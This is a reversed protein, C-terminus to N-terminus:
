LMYIYVLFLIKDMMIKLNEYFSRICSKKQSDKWVKKDCFQEQCIMRKYQIIVM